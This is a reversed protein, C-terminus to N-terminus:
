NNTASWILFIVPLLVAVAISGLYAANRFVAPNIRDDSKKPDIKVKVYLTTSTKTTLPGFSSTTTTQVLNNNNNNNISSIAIKNHQIGTFASVSSMTEVAVLVIVIITIFQNM